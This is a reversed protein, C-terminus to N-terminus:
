AVGGRATVGHVADLVMGRATGRQPGWVAQLLTIVANQNQEDLGIGHDEIWHALGVVALEGRESRMLQDIAAKIENASM